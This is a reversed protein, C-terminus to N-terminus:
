MQVVENEPKGCPVISAVHLVPGDGEYPDWHEVRAEATVEVWAREPIKGVDYGICAVALFSMDEACCVMAFRGPTFYRGYQPPKCMIARFVVTKGAYMQPNDMIEVYWLGYDEDSIRIVPQELDFASVTGDMYDQSSGDELELFIDARRNVLRLNKQRLATCLEPTCRNILIMDANRLKEMMLSAMNKAYMEFSPGDALAIIQYLAWNQPMSNVYFDQIQWMGNFEVIVQNARCKKRQAELFDPTLEEQEDVSLVTVNRLFKADYDTEGEECCLLLTRDELAFGDSLIGNIFSTKGSDLFGAILYVPYVKDQAM